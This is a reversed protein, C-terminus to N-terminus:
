HGEDPAEHESAQLAIQQPRRPPPLPKLSKFPPSHPNHCEVCTRYDKPGWWYGTRKGHVGTRWEDRKHSHCQTCLRWSEDLPVLTGDALHLRDRDDVDHCHLCWTDGHLFDMDDHDDELERVTRDSPEGEHCDSCPWYDDDMEPAALLVPEPEAPLTRSPYDRSTHPGQPCRIAFLSLALVFAGGLVTWVVMQSPPDPHGEGNPEASM